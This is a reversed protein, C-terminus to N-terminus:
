KKFMWFHITKTAEAALSPVFLLPLVIEWHEWTLAVTNFVPNLFPVYIVALVLVMSLAVAANMWHNSFVKIKLLPYYESRATFARLLESLSLTAFAMTEALEIRQPAISRGLFFAALTAGTIAITQVIIGVTMFRNIIPENAPRPPHNMIDPDGKETALSLAPAGDTVLNLWLLQIATLPSTGSILTAIFIIMIEAMNCSVLYYVFKRINSYIIRGQEIASVISAYNDDTLVMDAAGKAVDTGTIGMAVGIDARKIAPADNVGDGTMAVIEGNARLADVIRMKHEPSVRAFVDTTKVVDRLQEDNVADLEAGTKVQHGSRLLGIAEAIARATNAFDGTIMITRIGAGVAKNLAPKVEIRAPDIMGALGAFVLDHELTEPSIEDPLQPVLHYAMGLVRLAGHTLDENVALIEKRKAETLAEIRNDQNRYRDCLNLIMDPAGKMVIAYWNNKTEDYIPSIDDVQPKLVSHLTIMRKRNSDFPIEDVRPYADNIENAFTGAKAAAVLLSAETPDGIIRYSSLQDNEFVEELQADNNLLGVWLANLLAPHQRLDVPQDGISFEGKANYGSGSIQYLRDGAWIRTVTMENQTLTGTKDSCIVTASGLTEVSALRRILAHRRVMERMGLALSITVVAPLGEPVAAIALSIAVMFMGTLVTLDIQPARLLGVVFVLACVVLAGYGLLKGLQDLRQQLPTQGEDVSQLMNAILGLQTNMGTAIVVGRGRGYNVTTGMFVTNKRDGLPINAELASDINKQVPVSEGTLAAEEVRLNATELLRLDAPVFNGAELFVIDGPVLGYSPVPIRRGDRLVQAEPAAMKKLAALAQEARSEQVVGLVANLVVIAMIAAAEVEDGLLASIIAAVILLIVIFSKFQALVMQLFTARPKETLRNAGYQSLRQAADESSLGTEPQTNLRALVEEASIAHWSVNLQENDTSSPTPKPNLM